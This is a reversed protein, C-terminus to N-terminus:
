RLCISEPVSEDVRWTEAPDVLSLSEEPIGMLIESQQGLIDISVAFLGSTQSVGDYQSVFLHIRSHLQLTLFPKGDPSRRFQAEFLFYLYGFDHMFVIGGAIRLDMADQIKVHM